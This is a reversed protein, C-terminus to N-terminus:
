RLVKWYDSWGCIQLDGFLDNMMQLTNYTYSVYGMILIYTLWPGTCNRDSSNHKSMQRLVGSESSQFKICDDSNQMKLISTSYRGFQHLKSQHIINEGASGCSASLSPWRLTPFTIQMYKCLYLWCGAAQAPCPLHLTKVSDRILRWWGAITGLVVSVWGKIRSIPTFLWYHTYIFHVSWLM